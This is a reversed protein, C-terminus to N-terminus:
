LGIATNFYSFESFLKYPVFHYIPEILIDSCIRCCIQSGKNTNDPEKPTPRFNKVKLKIILNIFNIVTLIM